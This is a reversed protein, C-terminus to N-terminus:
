FLPDDMVFVRVIEEAVVVVSGACGRRGRGSSNVISRAHRGVHQSDVGVARRDILM